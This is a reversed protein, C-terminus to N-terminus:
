RQTTDCMQFFYQPIKFFRVTFQPSKPCIKVIDMFIKMIIFKIGPKMIKPILLHWTLAVCIISCELQSNCESIVTSGQEFDGRDEPHRQVGLCINCPTLFRKSNKITLPSTEEFLM